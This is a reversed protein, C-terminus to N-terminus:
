IISDKAMEMVMPLNSKAVEKAVIIEERTYEAAEALKEKM